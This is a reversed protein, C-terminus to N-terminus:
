NHPLITLEMHEGNRYLVVQASKDVQALLDHLQQANVVSQGNVQLLIDGPLVGKAAADSNENVDTIYIGTPLDQYVRWIEPVEQGYFGLSFCIEDAHSEEQHRSFAM